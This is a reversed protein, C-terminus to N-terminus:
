IDGCLNTNLQFPLNKLKTKTLDSFVCKENVILIFKNRERRM